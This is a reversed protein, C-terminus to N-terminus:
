KLPTPWAFELSDGDVKKVTSSSTSFANRLFFDKKLFALLDEIKVTRIVFMIKLLWNSGPTSCPSPASVLEGDSERVLCYLQLRRM